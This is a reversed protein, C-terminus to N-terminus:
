KLQQIIQYWLQSFSEVFREDLIINENSLNLAHLVGHVLEHFLTVEKVDNKLNKDLNIMGKQYDCYGIAGGYHLEPSEREVENITYTIGAIQIESPINM